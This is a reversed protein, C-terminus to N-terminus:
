PESRRPLIFAMLRFNKASVILFKPTPSITPANKSLIESFIACYSILATTTKPKSLTTNAKYKTSSHYPASKLAKSFRHQEAQKSLSSLEKSRPERQPRAPSSSSPQTIVQCSILSTIRSANIAETPTHDKNKTALYKSRLAPLVVCQIM